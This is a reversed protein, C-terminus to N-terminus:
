GRRHAPIVDSFDVGAARIAIRCTHVGTSAQSSLVVFQGGAAEVLARDYAMLRHCAHVDGTGRLPCVVSIEGYATGTAPDVSTVHATRRSALLREWEHAIAVPDTSPRVGRLAKTAAVFLPTLVKQELVRARSRTLVANLWLGMTFILGFARRLPKMRTVTGLGRTM